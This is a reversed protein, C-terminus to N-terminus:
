RAAEVPLHLSPRWGMRSVGEEITCGWTPSCGEQWAMVAAGSVRTVRNAHALDLLLGKAEEETKASGVQEWPGMLNGMETNIGIIWFNEKFLLRITYGIKDLETRSLIQGEPLRGRLQIAVGIGTGDWPTRDMPIEQNFLQSALQATAEHGIHSQAFDALGAHGLYMLCHLIFPINTEEVIWTGDAGSPIITTNLYHFKGAPLGHGLRYEIAKECKPGAINEM